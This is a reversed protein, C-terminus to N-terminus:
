LWETNIWPLSLAHSGLINVTIIARHAVEWRGDALDWWVDGSMGRVSIMVRVGRGVVNRGLVLRQVTGVVDAMGPHIIHEM